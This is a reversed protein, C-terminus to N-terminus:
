YTFYFGKSSSYHLTATVTNTCTQFVNELTPCPYSYTYSATGTASINGNSAITITANAFNVGVITINATCTASFVGNNYNLNFNISRGAINFTNSGLVSVTGNSDIYFNANFSYSGLSISKSGTAKIIGNEYSLTFPILSSVGAISLNNVLNGLLSVIGSSSIKFRAQPFSYGGLSIGAEGEAFLENNQYKLTFGTAIGGINFSQNLTGELIPTGSTSIKFKANSFNYSGLSIGTTGEAFLQNNQYKLTFSINLGGINFNNNLNGVLVIDGNAGIKIRATDFGYSGLNVGTTAIAYLIGNEYKLDFNIPNLGCVSFSNTLNGLLSVLGSSSIKFRAQPFSYGGLSIGAEGEAFLENNQYKLTFATNLGGVTFTNTTNGELSITGSSSIKFKAHSFSYTGLNIGTSSIAYLEEKEYKLNFTFSLGGVPFQAQTTGAIQITGDSLIKFYAGSFNYSGLAIGTTGEAFLQSNVYKLEFNIGGGVGPLVFSQTLKGELDVNGESSIRFRANAFSYSGLNIGLEGQAFLQKNEYRVNFMQSQGAINFKSSASINFVGGSSIDIKADSFTYSGFSLKGKASISGDNNISFDGTFQAGAISFNNLKLEAKLYSPGGIFYVKNKGIVPLDFDAEGNISDRIIKLNVTQTNGALTIKNTSSASLEQLDGSFNVLTKGFLPFNFEASAAISNPNIN